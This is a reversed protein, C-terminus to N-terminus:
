SQKVKARILFIIFNEEIQSYLQEKTQGKWIIENLTYPQKSVKRM